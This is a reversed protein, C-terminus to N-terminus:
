RVMDLVNVGELRDGWKLGLRNSDAGERGVAATAFGTLAWGNRFEGERFCVLPNVCKLKKWNQWEPNYAWVFLLM